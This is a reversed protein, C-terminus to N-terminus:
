SGLVELADHVLEEGSLTRPDKEIAKPYLKFTCVERFDHLHEPATVLIVPIDTEDRVLTDNMVKDVYRFFKRAEEQKVDNRSKWGHYPPLHDELSYYDLATLEGDFEPFTQAFYHKVDDPFEEFRVGNENGDLIGFFDANLLLLKFRTAEDRAVEGALQGFDCTDGVSVAAQPTVDMNYVYCNENDVFIALGKKAELWLPMDAHEYLYHLVDSLRKFARKEYKLSLDHEAQKVLDKFEIRDWEDRRQGRQEHEIPLYISVVPPEGYEFGEQVAGLDADDIDTVFYIDDAIERMREENTRKMISKM